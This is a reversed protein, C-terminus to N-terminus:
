KQKKNGFLTLLLIVITAVQLGLLINLPNKDITKPISSNKIEKVQKIDEIIPTPAVENQIQIDEM